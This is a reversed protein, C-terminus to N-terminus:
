QVALLSGRWHHCHQDEVTVCHSIQLVAVFSSSILALSLWNSPYGDGGGDRVDESLLEAPDTPTNDNIDSQRFCVGEAPDSLLCDETTM